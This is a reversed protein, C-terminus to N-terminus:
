QNLADFNVMGKLQSETLVVEITGFVYPAIEYPSFYFTIYGQNLTFVDFNKYQRPHLHPLM